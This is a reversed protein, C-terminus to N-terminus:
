RGRHAARVAKIFVAANAAVADMNGSRILAPTVVGSSIAYGCAGADAFEPINGPTLGGIALLRIHRLPGSIDLFYKSGITGAPFLSVFDAGARWATMAETATQAGPIALMGLERTKELVPVFCDPSVVFQGGAEHCLEVQRLDLVTGAGVLMSDGFADTVTAIAKATEEWSGPDDAAFTLGMMRVGGDYLAQAVLTASQVPCDPVLVLLKEKEFFSKLEKM